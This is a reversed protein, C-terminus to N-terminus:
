AEQFGLFPMQGTVSLPRQAQVHSGHNRRADAIRGDSTTCTVVNEWAQAEM